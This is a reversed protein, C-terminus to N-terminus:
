VRPMLDSSVQNSFNLLIGWLSENVAELTALLISHPPPRTLRELEGSEPCLSRPRQRSPFLEGEARSLTESSSHPSLWLASTQSTPFCSPTLPPLALRRLHRPVRRGGPVCRRAAVLACVRLKASPRRVAWRGRQARPACGPRLGRPGVVGRVM